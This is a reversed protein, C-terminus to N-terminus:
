FIGFYLPLLIVFTENRKFYLLLVLYLRIEPAFYM